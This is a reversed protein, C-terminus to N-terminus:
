ILIVILILGLIFILKSRLEGKTKYIDKTADQINTLKLIINNSNNIENDIDMKGISMFCNYIENKEFDNFYISYNKLESYNNLIKQTHISYKNNYKDVVRSIDTKLFSIESIYCKFFDILENVIKVKTKYFNLNIISIETFCVFLIALLYFKM